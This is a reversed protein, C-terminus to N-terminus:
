WTTFQLSTAMKFHSIVRPNTVVLMELLVKEEFYNIVKSLSFNLDAILALLEESM